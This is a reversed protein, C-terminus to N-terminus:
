VLDHVLLMRWSAASRSGRRHRKKGHVNRRREQRHDQDDDHKGNKHQHGDSSKRREEREWREDCECFRGEYWAGCEDCKRVM